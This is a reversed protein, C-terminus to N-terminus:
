REDLMASRISDSLENGSPASGHPGTLGRARMGSGLLLPIEGLRSAVSIGAHELKRRKASVSDGDSTIMAAAHGFSKGAPYSEQFAGALLAVVPKNVVGSSVLAAVDQENKTGPEGFLVIADTDPDQDFMEVFTKMPTGVVQDGGMSVCTSVGLQAKKLELAIEACMGGSRSCIGIRGPNYIQNSDEGGIGGVKAQGPSIVGNSNCGIVRAKHARAAALLMAVDHRPVGETTILLTRIGAEIAELAASKTDLPPAYIVSFDAPSHRLAEAVTDFIPRGEVYDGGRGPTVGAVIQTGYRLCREADVRAQAGTMGQVIVKSSHDIIISM